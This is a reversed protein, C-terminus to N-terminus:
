PGLRGRRSAQEWWWGEYADVAADGFVEPLPGWVAEFTSWEIWGREVAYIGPGDSLVYFLPMGFALALAYPWFSIRKPSDM